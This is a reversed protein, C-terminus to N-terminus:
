AASRAQEVRRFAICWCWPNSEWSARGNIATWGIRWLDTPTAVPIVRGQGSVLLGALSLALRKRQPLGNVLAQVSELTVGEAAIDAESIDQVREVRVGTVELTLRSAWRPMLISPGWKGAAVSKPVTWEVGPMHRDIHAGDAAYLTRVHDGAGVTAWARWTERVWLRDGPAGYPCAAGWEGFDDFAGFVEAGPQGEGRRDVVLPHYRDVVIRSVDEPPQPKVVRRTVTKQGALIARVMPGSMLIPRERSM